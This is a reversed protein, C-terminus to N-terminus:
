FNIILGTQAQIWIKSVSDDKRVSYGLSKLRESIIDLEDDFTRKKPYWDVRDIGRDTANEIERDLDLPLITGVKMSREKAEKATM